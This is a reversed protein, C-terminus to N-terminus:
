KKISDYYVEYDTLDHCDDLDDSLNCWRKLRVHGDKNM